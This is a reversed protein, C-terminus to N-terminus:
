IREILGDYMYHNSITLFELITIKQSDKLENNFNNVLNILDEDTINPINQDTKPILLQDNNLSIIRKYIYEKISLTRDCLKLNYHNKINKYFVCTSGTSSM